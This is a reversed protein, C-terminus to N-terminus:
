VAVILLSATPGTPLSADTSGFPWPSDVGPVADTLVTPNEKVLVPGSPLVGSSPAFNVTLWALAPLVVYKLASPVGTRFFSPSATVSSRLSPPVAPTNVSVPRAGPEYRTCSVSTGAPKM